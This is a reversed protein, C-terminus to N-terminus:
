NLVCETSMEASRRELIQSPHAKVPRVAIKLGGVGGNVGHHLDGAPPPEAVWAPEAHGVLFCESGASGFAARM